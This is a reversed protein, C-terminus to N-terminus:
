NEKKEEEEQPKFMSDLRTIVQFLIGAEKLEYVGKSQAKNIGSVLTNILEVLERERNM